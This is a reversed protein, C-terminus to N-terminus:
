VFFHLFKNPIVRMDTKCFLFFTIDKFNNIEFIFM